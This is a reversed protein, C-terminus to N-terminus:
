GEMVLLDLLFFLSSFSFCLCVCNWFFRLLLVREKGFDEGVGRRILWLGGGWVWSSAKSFTILSRWDEMSFPM